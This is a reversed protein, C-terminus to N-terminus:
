LLTEPIDSQQRIRQPMLHFAVEVLAGFEYSNMAAPSISLHPYAGRGKLNWRNETQEGNLDHIYGYLPSSRIPDIGVIVATERGETQFSIPDIKIIPM